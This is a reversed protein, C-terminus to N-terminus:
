QIADALLAGIVEALEPPSQDKFGSLRRYVEAAGAHFGEPLGAARFSAAIEYM